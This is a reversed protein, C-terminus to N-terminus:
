DYGSSFDAGGFVAYFINVGKSLRDPVTVCNVLTKIRNKLAMMEHLKGVHHVQLSLNLVCIKEKLITLITTFGTNM